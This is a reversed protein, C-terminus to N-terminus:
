PVALLNIFGPTLPGVARWSLRAAAFGPSPERGRRPHPLAASGFSSPASGHLM